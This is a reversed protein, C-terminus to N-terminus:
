NFTIARKTESKGYRVRQADVPKLRHVESLASKEAEVLGYSKELERRAKESENWGLNHLSIRAGDPKINTTVLHM